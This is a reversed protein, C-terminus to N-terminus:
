HPPIDKPAAEKGSYIYIALDTYDWGLWLPIVWLTFTLGTWTIGAQKIGSNHNCELGQSLFACYCVSLINNKSQQEIACIYSQAATREHLVSQLKKLLATIM